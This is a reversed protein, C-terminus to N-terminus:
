SAAISQTVEEADEGDDMNVMQLDEVFNTLPLEAETAVDGSGSSEPVESSPLEMSAEVEPNTRGQALFISNSPNGAIPMGAMPFGNQINVPCMCPVFEVNAAAPVTPSPSAGSKNDENINSPPKYISYEPYPYVPRNYNINFHNTYVKRNFAPYAAEINVVADTKIFAATGDNKGESETTAATTTTSATTTTPTPTTTTTTTTTSSTTPKPTTTTTTTTTSTTTTSSTTTPTTTGKTGGATIQNAGSWSRVVNAYKKGQKLESKNIENEAVDATAPVAVGGAGAGMAQPLLSLMPNFYPNNALAAYNTVYDTSSMMPFPLPNGAMPQYTYTRFYTLPIQKMVPPPTSTPETPSSRWWFANIPGIVSLTLLVLYKMPNIFM